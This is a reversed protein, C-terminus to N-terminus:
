FSFNQCNLNITYELLFHKCESPLLTVFNDPFVGIKGRLEGKWWGKDPLDKTIITVIDGEGLKLEDENVPQYAFLVKCQERIPKPPLTPVDHEDGVLDERSSNLSSRNNKNLIINNNNNIININASKRHSSIPSVSDILEVFNSPFVGVKNGLKGKWWGEEIQFKLFFLFTLSVALNELL